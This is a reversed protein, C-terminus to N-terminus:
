TLNIAGDIEETVSVKELWQYELALQPGFVDATQVPVATNPPLPNKTKFSAPPINTFSDPLEPVSKVKEPEFQLQHCEEGKTEKTPHQFM